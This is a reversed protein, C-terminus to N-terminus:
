PLPAASRQPPLQLSRNTAPPMAIAKPEAEFGRRNMHQRALARYFHFAERLAGEENSGRMAESGMKCYGMRFLLYALLYHDLRAGPDDGSARRYERLLFDATASPLRWEVIVGALDWAIDCPGPFLHDDGHSAGDIKVVEGSSKQIWEYPMVRADAIVPRECALRSADLTIEIGFEEIANQQCMEELSVEDPALRPLDCAFDKARIACYCALKRLIEEDASAGPCDVGALGCAALSRGLVREYCAYGDVHVAPDVRPSLRLDALQQSRRVVENGYCGLGEFKYVATRNHALYKARELQPWCPPRDCSFGNESPLFHDRWVGAGIWEGADRPTREGFGIGASRFSKWRRAADPARLRDPDPSHSCILAIAEIPVGAAVLAEGVSLLSSGSLGPGEDVVFFRAGAAAQARIWQLQEEGFRCRRDFPHGEPRVTRREAQRGRARLAATVIASLTTGISRLGIVAAQSFDDPLSNILRAYALPHLGYYAFGEPKAAIVSEPVCLRRADNLLDRNPLSARVLCEALVDTINCVLILQRDDSRLDALACELEGARLLADLVASSDFGRSSASAIADRLGRLLSEGSAVRRESRFVYM